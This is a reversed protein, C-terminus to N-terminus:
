SDLCLTGKNGLALYGITKGDPSWKVNTVFNNFNSLQLPQQTLRDARLSELNFIWLQYDGTRNSLFVVEKGDPSWDAGIDSAPDNTLQIEENSHLDLMWIESNGTRDSQYIM